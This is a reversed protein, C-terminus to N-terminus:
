AVIVLKGDIIAVVGAINVGPYEEAAMNEADQPTDAEYSDAWREGCDYYGIVLYNM